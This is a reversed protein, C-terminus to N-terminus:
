CEVRWEPVMPFQAATKGNNSIMLLAYEDRGLVDGNM